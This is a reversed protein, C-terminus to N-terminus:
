YTTIGPRGSHNRTSTFCTSYRRKVLRSSPFSPYRMGHHRTTDLVNWRVLVDRRVDVDSRQMVSVSHYTVYPPHSCTERPLIGRYEYWWRKEVMDQFKSSSIPHEFVLHDSMSGFLSPEQIREELRLPEKMEVLIDEMMRDLVVCSPHSYYRQHFYLRTESMSRISGADVSDFSWVGQIVRARKLIEIGNWEIRDKCEM